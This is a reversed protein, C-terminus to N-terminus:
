KKDLKTANAVKTFQENNSSSVVVAGNNNKELDSYNSCFAFRTGGTFVGLWNGSVKFSPAVKDTTIHDKVDFDTGSKYLIYDKGVSPQPSAESDFRSLDKRVEHKVERANDGLTGNIQTENQPTNTDNSTFDSKWEYLSAM